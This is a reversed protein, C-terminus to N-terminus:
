SKHIIHALRGLTKLPDNKRIMLLLSIFGFPGKVKTLAEIYDSPSTMVSLCDIERCLRDIAITLIQEAISGKIRGWGDVWCIFLDGYFVDSDRSVSQFTSSVVHRNIMLYYEVLKLLSSKGSGYQGIVGVTKLERM